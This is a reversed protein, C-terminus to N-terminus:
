SKSSLSGVGCGLLRVACRKTMLTVDAPKSNLDRKGLHLGHMCQRSSLLLQTGDRRNKGEVRLPDSFRSFYGGQDGLIRRGWFLDYLAGKWSSGELAWLSLVSHGM